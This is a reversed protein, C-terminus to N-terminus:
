VKNRSKIGCGIAKTNSPDPDKGKEIAAIANEVYKESVNSASRQNDDIAGIYRLVMQNDVLFVHPTVKAGFKPFVEQSEDFIYAFPFGKEKAREQMKAFSDGPKIEPDNPNVALVHYGKEAYNNHLDIIRQEYAKAVPCTNCTFILIVGKAKKKKFYDSLSVTSEDVNKLSFDEVKDGVKYAEKASEPIPSKTKASIFLGVGALAVILISILQKM